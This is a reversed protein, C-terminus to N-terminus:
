WSLIRKRRQAASSWSFPQFLDDGHDAALGPHYLDADALRLAVLASLTLSDEVDFILDDLFAVGQDVGQLLAELL